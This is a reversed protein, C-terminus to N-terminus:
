KQNVFKAGHLGLLLLLALGQQSCPTRLYIVATRYGRNMIQGSEM